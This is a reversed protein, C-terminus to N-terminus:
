RKAPVKKLQNHDKIASAIIVPGSVLAYIGIVWVFAVGSSVPQFLMIIGVLLSLAGVVILATRMGGSLDDMFAAVIEFVGRFIFAFGILLILTAFGVHPHRLLYVGIGVQLLALLVKMIWVGVGEGWSFIGVFLNILGSALLFAAFLYLFTLATLGPWFVASIGFLLAVVGEAVRIGWMSDEQM